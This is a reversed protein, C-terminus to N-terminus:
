KLKDGALKDIIGLSESRSISLVGARTKLTVALDEKLLKIFEKVDRPELYDSNEANCGQIKESLNFEKKNM